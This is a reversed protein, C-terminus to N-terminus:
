SSVEVRSLDGILLRHSGTHGGRVQAGRGILSNRIGRAGSIRAGRLVVSEAIEAGTLECDEGVATNPGVYSDEIVSGAGVIVPGEIHSRVVCAGAELRVGGTLVSDEDVAGSREFLTPALLRRNCDLLDDITGTDRWFGSYEHSRILAGQEILYQLADTIELEGRASPRINAVAEHIVSTFFYVGVIAHDGRPEAPKEQFSLVRGEHDLEVIGYQSPDDVKATTVCAHPRQEEFIRATEHVGDALINDGLYMVFDDEGLFDRAISVCHALGLPEDQHIYTIRLGFASGDGVSERIEEGFGGIVVGVERVGIDRLNELCHHLVPKNGVPILQKPFSFTFPRLRSGSGGSLM